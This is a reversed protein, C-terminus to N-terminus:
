LAEAYARLKTLTEETIQSANSLGGLWLLEKMDWNLYSGIQHLQLEISAKVDPDTDASILVASVIHSKRSVRDACSHFRDIFAKLQSPIGFFYVPIVFVIRDAEEYGKLWQVFYDDLICTGGNKKCTGCDLCPQITGPFAQVVLARDEPSSSIMDKLSSAIQASTGYRNSSGTIIMTNM